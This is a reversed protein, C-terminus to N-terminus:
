LIIEATAIEVAVNLATAKGRQKEYSFLKVGYSFRLRAIAATLDTSGDSVIIIERLGPPYDCEILNNIRREIYEQENHCAIVISVRPRIDAKLVERRRLRALLWVAVPYGVYTYLIATVSIWFLTEIMKVEAQKLLGLESM